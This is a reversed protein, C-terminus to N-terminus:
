SLSWVTDEIRGRRIRTLTPCQLGQTFIEDLCSPCVTLLRLNEEKGQTVGLSRSCMAGTLKFMEEQGQTVGFSRSCMAGTLKLM